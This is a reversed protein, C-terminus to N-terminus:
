SQGEVRVWRWSGGSDWNSYDSYWETVWWTECRACRWPRERWRRGPRPQTPHGYAFCSLVPAFRELAAWTEPNDRKAEREFGRLAKLVDWQMGPTSM